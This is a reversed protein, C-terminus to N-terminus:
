PPRVRNPSPRYRQHRNAQARLCQYKRSASCAPLKKSKKSRKERKPTWIRKMPKMGPSKFDPKLWWTSFLKRKSESVLMLIM